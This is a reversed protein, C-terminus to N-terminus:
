KNESFFHKAPLIPPNAFRRSDHDEHSGVYDPV